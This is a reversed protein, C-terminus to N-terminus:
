VGHKKRWSAPTEGTEKRFTRSFHEYERFGCLAAIEYLRLDPDSFVLLQKAHYIRESTLMQSFTGEGSEKLIHCLRSVSINVAKAADSTSIDEAYHREIFHQVREVFTNQPAKDIPVMGRARAELGAAFLPLLGSIRAIKAKDNKDLLGAFVAMVCKGRYYVPAALEFFGNRCNIEFIDQEPHEAIRKNLGHMCYGICYARQERGCHEPHTMRHSTRIRDILSKEGRFFVDNFPHLCIKCGLLEEFATIEPELSYIKM